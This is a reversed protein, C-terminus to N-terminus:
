IKGDVRDNVPPAPLPPPTVPMGGLQQDQGIAAATIRGSAPAPFVRELFLQNVAEPQGHRDAMVGGAGRLPIRNLVAEETLDALVPRPLRQGAVAGDDAQNPLGLGFGPQSDVATQGGLEVRRFCFDGIALHGFQVKEFM